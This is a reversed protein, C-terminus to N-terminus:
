KADKRMSAEIAEFDVTSNNTDVYHKGDHKRKVSMGAQSQLSANSNNVVSTCGKDLEHNIMHTKSFVADTCINVAVVVWEYPIDLCKVESNHGHDGLTGVSFDWLYTKEKLNEVTTGQPLRVIALSINEKDIKLGDTKDQFAAVSYITNM